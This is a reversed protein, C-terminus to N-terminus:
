LSVLNSTMVKKRRLIDFVFHTIVNKDLCNIVDYVKLIKRWNDELAIAQLSFLPSSSYVFNSYRSFLFLKKSSILIKWLWQLVIMQLFFHFITSVFKLYNNIKFVIKYKKISIFVQCNLKDFQYITPAM